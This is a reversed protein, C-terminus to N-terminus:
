GLANVPLYNSKVDRHLYRRLRDHVDPAPNRVIIRSPGSGRQAGARLLTRIEIDDPPMSYGVIELTRARSLATYADKWIGILPGLDGSKGRAMTVMFPEEARSKIKRWADSWSEMARVRIITNAQLARFSPEMM